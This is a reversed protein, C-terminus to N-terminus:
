RNGTIKYCNDLAERIHEFYYIDDLTGFGALMGAESTLSAPSVVLAKHFPDAAVPRKNLSAQIDPNLQVFMNAWNKSEQEEEQKTSSPQIM